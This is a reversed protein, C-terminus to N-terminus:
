YGLWDMLPDEGVVGVSGESVGPIVEWSSGLEGTNTDVWQSLVVRTGDAAEYGTMGHSRLLCESATLVKPAM